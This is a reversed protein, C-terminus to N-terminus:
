WGRQILIQAVRPDVCAPSGDDTKLILTFGQKCQVDKPQVGSKTQELPPLSQTNAQNTTQQTNNQQINNQQTNSPITNSEQSNSTMNDSPTGFSSDAPIPSMSTSNDSATSSGTDPSSSTSNDEPIPGTNTDTYNGEPIPGANPDSPSQAFVSESNLTSFSWVLIVSLGLLIAISPVKSM